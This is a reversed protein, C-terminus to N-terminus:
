VVPVTDCAEKHGLLVSIRDPFGTLLPDNKGEETLDLTVCSVPERYRTSVTAGLYM